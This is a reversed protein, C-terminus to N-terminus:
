LVVLFFVAILFLIVAWTSADGLSWKAAAPAGLPGNVEAAGLVGVRAEM